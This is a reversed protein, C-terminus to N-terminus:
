ERTLIDPVIRHVMRCYWQKSRLRFFEGAYVTYMCTKIFYCGLGEKSM